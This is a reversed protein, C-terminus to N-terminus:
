DQAIELVGHSMAVTGPDIAAIFDRARSDGMIAAAAAQAAAMTAWEVHDLWVGDADRSLRRRVFGAQAALYDGAGRAAALFADDGVGDNIRFTVSEIVASQM